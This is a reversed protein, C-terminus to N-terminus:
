RSFLLLCPGRSGPLWAPSWALPPPGIQAKLGWNKSNAGCPVQKSISKHVMGDIVAGIVTDYCM